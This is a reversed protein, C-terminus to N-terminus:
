STTATVVQDLNKSTETYSDVSIGSVKQARALEQFATTRSATTLIHLASRQLDGLRLTHSGAPPYRGALTITYATVPTAPDGPTAHRVGSLTIAAKQAATPASSALLERVSRYAADVSAFKPDATHRQNNIADITTTGSLPTRSLDTAADVTTSVTTPGGAEPTLGGFAFTDGGADSHDSGTNRVIRTHVPLGTVDLTPPTQVAADVIDSPSGGPEILDNGSYMSATADQSGGWDSMVTGTFGWEGRLLDTLLDRSSAAYSGGVKNYSSMVAMPQASRVAIEFGKLEIERLAREGVVSDGGRRGSEQNNAALHKVTVGVGPNSQVGRTTAAATLGSVLPDEAYYEFNRGGLPDRHINMGPALWLSVGFANMEKGIATGVRRILATDFSQALLTGVPWATAYQYTAPTTPVKPTLRLGAPGDALTMSPVGLAELTGTTYGAAGVASRTSGGTAAGEVVAALRRLSLGAVFEQITTRGKAVDYLTADPDTEVYRVREGPKPAYPAGTKEWNQQRHDLYATTAALQSGDLAHYPSAPGVTVDRARDAAHDATRFARPDLTLRRAAATEKKEAAYTFFDAPTSTLERAPRRAALEHHNRETIVPRALSLRAAVHTSRSSDGVRVVYDGADLVWAARSADYSALSPTTFRITVTQSVGPALEDTKGYGALQQYAKDAGSQPASVYIQVVDRGSHRRGTNTVEARVTVHGADATVTRTRIRFATYSRGFGFPYNVAGAPYREDLTRDFSDFYRYGVYIGETYEERAVQGDNGAFTASAPYAAYDSAWTDTLRGSPTVTGDLVRALATGGEQGAQSMLLMADLAPGGAPDREAANLQRYFSTDIVGGSNIVVVVHAYGRGLVTLDARETDSLLYDGKRASRDKKEGSSRAVVYVATGTPAAPRATATTLPQEVSAYDVAQGWTSSTGHGYKADYAATMASWYAAGTTVRHGTKELGQRVSVTYRNNVNGSGTGGEATRYAGVGFLAVPADPGIPLTRDHNELLVMGQEASQRSLLANAQELGARRESGSGPPGPILGTLLLVAAAAAVAAAGIM